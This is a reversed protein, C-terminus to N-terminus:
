EEAVQVGGAQAQERRLRGVQVLDFGYEMSSESDAVIPLM